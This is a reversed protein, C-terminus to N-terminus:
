ALERRTSKQRFYFSKLESLDSKDGRNLANVPNSPPADRPRNMKGEAEPERPIEVSVSANRRPM